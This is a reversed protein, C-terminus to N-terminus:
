SSATFRHEDPFLRGRVAPSNLEFHIKNKPFPLSANGRNFPFCRSAAPTFASAAALPAAGDDDDGIPHGPEILLILAGLVVGAVIVAAIALAQAKGPRHGPRSDISTMM